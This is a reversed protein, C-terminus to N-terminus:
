GYGLDLKEKDIPSAILNQNDSLRIRRIEKQG